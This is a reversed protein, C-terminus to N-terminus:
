GGRRLLLAYITVSLTILLGYLFQVYFGTLGIAVIGAELSGIILVGIFTGYLTGKGGFVSTGGIFVAALTTLLMGDGQSPWFYTVESTLFVGALAAFGGVLMFCAIKVRDVKIGMMAASAANDGVFLVHSGFRHRRYILGLFLAIAVMWVFQMPLADDFLRGVFVQHLPSERLSVLAIGKGEAAMNVAGRWLFMTGITAVISPIGIKAVLLGNGLGALVGVCLCALLALLFSESSIYVTGFVWTSFGMVSPFSLDMEGLTVVFTMALAMIGFFPMTSMFSRYIDYRLFVDPNGTLFLSYLGILILTIAIQIKHASIFAAWDRGRGGAPPVAAAQESSGTM